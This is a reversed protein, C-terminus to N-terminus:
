LTVQENERFNKNKMEELNNEGRGIEEARWERDGKKLFKM